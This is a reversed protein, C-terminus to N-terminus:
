YPRIPLKTRAIESAIKNGSHKGPSITALAESFQNSLAFDLLFGNTLKARAVQSAIGNAPKQRPGTTM